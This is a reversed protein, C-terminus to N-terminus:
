QGPRIADVAKLRWLNLAGTEVIRNLLQHPTLVPVERRDFDSRDPHGSPTSPGESRHGGVPPLSSHASHVAPCLDAAKHRRALGGGVNGLLQLHTAVGHSPEPGRRARRGVLPGRCGQHKVLALLRDGGEEVVVGLGLHRGGHDDLVQAPLAVPAPDGEQLLVQGLHTGLEQRGLALLAGGLEEALDALEVPPVGPREIGTPLLWARSAMPKTVGQRVRGAM